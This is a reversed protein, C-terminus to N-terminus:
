RREYSLIHFTAVLDNPIETFGPSLNYELGPVQFIKSTQGANGSSTSIANGIVTGMVVGGKEISAVNGAYYLGVSTQTGTSLQNQNAGTFTLDNEAIMGLVEDKPFSPTHCNTNNSDCVQSTSPLVDGDITINGGDGSGDKSAMITAKKSFRTAVNRAFHLDYGEFNVIGYVSLDWNGNADEQYKFGHPTGGAPTWTCDIPTTGFTLTTGSSIAGLDCQSNNSADQPFVAGQPDSTMCERWTLTPDSKCKTGDLTPLEIPKSLDYGVNGNPYNDAFISTSGSVSIDQSGRSINLGSLSSKYGTPASSDGIVTSGGASIQGYNIRLRACLDQQDTATAGLMAQLQSTTFRNGMLNLLDSTDYYNHMGFNGNTSIVTPPTSSGTPTPGEVYVSGWVSAGGNIFKSSVGGGAFLANSFLGANQPHFVVQVTAKAGHITGVSTLVVDSAKPTFTITYTGGGYNGTVTGGPLVDGKNTDFSFDRDLDLGSALLNGCIASTGLNDGYQQLHDLYFRFTQFAVTKYKEIGAQAVYYAETSTTDNRTTWSEIQTTFVTGLVLLTIVALIILATVLAIGEHNRRM